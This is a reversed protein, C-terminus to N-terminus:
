FVPRALRDEVFPTIDYKHDPQWRTTKHWEIEKEDTWYDIMMIHLVVRPKDNVMEADITVKSWAVSTDEFFNIWEPRLAYSGGLVIRIMGHDHIIESGTYFDWEMCGDYELSIGHQRCNEDFTPDKQRALRIDNDHVDRWFENERVFRGRVEKKFQEFKRDYSWENPDPPTNEGRCEACFLAWAEDENFKPLLVGCQCRAKGDRALAIIINISERLDTENMDLNRGM